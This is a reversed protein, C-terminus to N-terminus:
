AMTTGAFADEFTVVAASIRIKELTHILSASASAGLSLHEGFDVEPFHRLLQQPGIFGMSWNGWERQHVLNNAVITIATHRDDAKIRELMSTVSEDTGELVQVFHRGDFFLVGGIALVSNHKRAAQIISNIGAKSPAIALSSYLLRRLM